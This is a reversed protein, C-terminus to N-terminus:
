QSSLFTPFSLDPKNGFDPLKPPNEELQVLIEEIAKNLQPDENRMYDQPTIDVEIDPDTGYNEVGWDVDQFWFSYEPQTTKSGDVLTHRPSIGIVGGWTRKGILTGLKMLKFCHSFIDGDSGALEDTVAVIPGLLSGEPYPTARGWRQLNYGIRKRALKELILQSVHGGGNCRVDVILADCNIELLYSRHFEAYGNVGMDPIHVYGVKGGTKTYVTKRNQTVWQRYYISREDGIAKISVTRTPNESDDTKVTLTVESGAQNVLLQQPSTEQDLKQGNVAMLKDGVKINIGPGNLPSDKGESWSDGRVIHLIKYAQDSVDYELEAGLFGQGYNHPNLRYDGGSEYAHSTGLEGQMEWMLDSFESRTTIRDLLPLYRDHVCNWDVGSMDEVWFHERQLRWAERYMQRRETDPDVSVKIRGLNIWGGVRTQEDKDPAKECAKIIRLKDASQYALIKYDSSVKFSSVDSAITEKEHKEVDYMELRSKEESGPIPFSTFYVKNKIGAIQGYRGESLPFAVVRDTIGELDIQVLKEDEKEKQGQDNHQEVITDINEDERCSDEKKNGEPEVLPKPEAVFPSKQDAQLTILFPRMGRPFGLDFHLNDYVPSFDRYSLFYLFKGEPDFSPNIDRLIPETVQHTEGSETQCIKISSTQQTCALGYAIWKGDPSWSVGNVREYNSRDLLTMKKSELDILVLEFRHNTLVVLDDKPSVDLSVPRGIDLGELKEPPKSENAYRIELFEEEGEDSICVLRQGDKLWRTLRYRVGDSYGHQTVAGEWNGMTFSKGRSTISVSHNHPDLDYDEFYRATDVFKRNRQIRPTRFDITILQNKNYHPDYVYLDAGVHYVIRNGDTSAYRAYFEQHNTHHQLDEGDPLCSYLNGIGQHDSLFFIRDEVWMPSALNGGLNILQRFEGTDDPDIWIVGATGGRYRKWRAPDATFRGLVIGGNKGYSINRASGYPMPQSIGGNQDIEFLQFSRTFPLKANSAFIITQNDPKWNVVANHTGLYTLRESLGGLTPMVFVEAPGEERGTFALYKGDPSIFPHSVEGLNSTLRRAIGGSVEVTWLDDEAVFVVQDEHITPFRYYGQISM